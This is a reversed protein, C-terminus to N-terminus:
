LIRSAEHRVIDLLTCANAHACHFHSPKSELENAEAKATHFPCFRDRYARSYVKDIPFLRQLLSPGPPPLSAASYLAEILEEIPRVEGMGHTREKANMQLWHLTENVKKPGKTFVPIPVHNLPYPSSHAPPLSHHRAAHEMFQRLDGLLQAPRTDASTAEAM